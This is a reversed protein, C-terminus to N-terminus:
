RTPSSLTLVDMRRGECSYILNERHWVLDKRQSHEIELVDLLTQCESYSWPFCFAFYTVRADFTHSFTVEYNVGCDGSTM